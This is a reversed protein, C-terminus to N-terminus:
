RARLQTSLWLLPRALYSTLRHHKAIYRRLSDLRIGQKHKEDLLAFSEGGIHRARADGVVVGTKGRNLLRRALDVDEYWLFFEADFGNVAAWDQRRM